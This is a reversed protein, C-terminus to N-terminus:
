KKYIYTITDGVRYVNYRKTLIQEGCSTYYTYIYDVEITSHPPFVKVSDIVCKTVIDNKDITKKSQCSFLLITLVFYITKM